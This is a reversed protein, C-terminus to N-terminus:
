KNKVKSDKSLYFYSLATLIVWIISYVFDGLSVTPMIPIKYWSNVQHKCCFELLCSAGSDIIFGFICIIGFSLIGSWLLKIHTEEQKVFDKLDYAILTLIFGVLSDEVSFNGESMSVAVVAAIAAALLSTKGNNNTKM